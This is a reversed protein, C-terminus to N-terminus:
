KTLNELLTELTQEDLKKAIIKKDKDLLYVAPTSSTDFYHWFFSKREPDWANVWDGLHHEDIFKLWEEKDTQTYICLVELGASKYKQYLQDHVLPTMQRCHGCSPEFFYLLTYESQIDNLIVPQNGADSLILNHAQMGIRNFRIKKYEAEINASFASDTWTTLGKFYYDETLKAWINEMGMYKSQVSYDFLHSFMLRFCLTDAVTRDVLASAANALTDPHKELVQEMYADIKKPFYNTYWFRIDTLDIHDFYHMKLFEQQTYYEEMSVPSPYPGEVPQIGKFFDAVWEGKHKQLFHDIFASVEDNLASLQGRLDGQQDEPLEQIQSILKNREEQKVSLYRAYEMFAETQLSGTIKSKRIFNGPEIQMQFEQDDTLLLDFSQGGNRYIAYLGQPLTEQQQFVGMGKSSLQISDKKYLNGNFYNCLFITSDAWQSVKIEIKCSGKAASPASVFILLCPILLYYKFKMHM